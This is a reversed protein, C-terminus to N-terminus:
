IKIKKLKLIELQQLEAASLPLTFQTGGGKLNQWGAARGCLGYFPSDVKLGSDKVTQMWKLYNSHIKELDKSKLKGDLRNSLKDLQNQRLFDLKEKYTENIWCSKVAEPNEKYPVSIESLSIREKNTFNTGYMNGLRYLTNNKPDFPKVTKPDFGFYAPWAYTTEGFRNLGTADKKNQPILHDSREGDHLLNYGNINQQIRSGIPKTRDEALFMKLAGFDKFKEVISTFPVEIRGESLTMLIFSNERIAIVRGTGECGNKKKYIVFQPSAHKENKKDYKEWKPPDMHTKIKGNKQTWLVPEKSFNQYEGLCTSLYIELKELFELEDHNCIDIEDKLSLGFLNCYDLWFNNSLDEIIPQISFAEENQVSDNKQYFYICNDKQM